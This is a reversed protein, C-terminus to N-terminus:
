RLGKYSNNFLEVNFVRSSYSCKELNFRKQNKLFKKLALLLSYLFIVSILVLNLEFVAMELQCSRGRQYRLGSDGIVQVCGARARM